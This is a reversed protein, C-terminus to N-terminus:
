CMGTFADVPDPRLYQARGFGDHPETRRVSDIPEAKEIFRDGTTPELPLPTETVHPTTM